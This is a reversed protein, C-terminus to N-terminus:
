GTRRRRSMAQQVLDMVRRRDILLELSVYLVVGLPICVLLQAAAAMDLRSQVWAVVMGMIAASLIPRGLVDVVEGPRQGILRLVFYSNLPTLLITLVLKGATVAVIGYRVTFLLTCVIAIASFINWRFQFRVWGKASFIVYNLDNFTSFMTRLTTLGMLVAVMEWGPGLLLRVAPHAVAWLGFAIPAMVTMLGHQMALYGRRLRADDDQIIAMVPFMVKRVMQVTIRLPSFVIQDAMQSYGLDATSLRNGIIPRDSQTSLYQLVGAATVYGGYSLLPKLATYSFQFGPKWRAFVLVLVLNMIPAAMLQALLAEFRYGMLVMIVAVASGSLAAGVEAVTLKGFALNRELVSQPVGQLGGLIFIPSVWMLSSVIEESGMMRAILPSAVMLALCMLIGVGVNWWFVSDEELKSVDRRQVIAMRTGFDTFIQAIGSVFTVMAIMGFEAASIHRSLIGLVAVGQLARILRGTVTFSAGKLAKAKLNQQTM